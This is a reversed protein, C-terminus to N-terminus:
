LSTFQSIIPPIKIVQFNSIRLRKFENYHFDLPQIRILYFFRCENVIQLINSFFCSAMWLQSHVLLSTYWCCSFLTYRHFNLTNGNRFYEKKLFKCFYNIEISKKNSMLMTKLEHLNNGRFFYHLLLYQSVLATVGSLM